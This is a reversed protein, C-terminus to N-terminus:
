IVCPLMILNNVLIKYCGQLNNDYPSALNEVIEETKDMIIKSTKPRPCSHNMLYYVKPQNLTAMILALCQRQGM